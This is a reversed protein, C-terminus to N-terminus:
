IYNTSKIINKELLLQYYLKKTEQVMRSTTFHQFVRNRGSQGMIKRTYPRHFLYQITESIAHPNAPPILLGTQNDVIVEPTGGVNTAVIPLQMAMAELITNPLGEWLSASLYIDCVGLIESIDLREGTLIVQKSLGLKQVEMMLEAKIIGGGVILQYINPITKSVEHIAKILISFGKQKHLRGVSVAVFSNKPIGLQQRKQLWEEHSPLIFRDPDIGNYITLVKDAQVGANDIELQRALECVAIVKDDLRSTCRNIKERWASGIVTNRRSTIIVPIHTVRGLLRGIINPHYMWSHLIKPQNETLLKYFRWLADLRFKSTMNLDIVPIGSAKISQAIASDGNNLCAVTIDFESHDLRTVLNRLSTQAGGISLDTILHLIPIPM